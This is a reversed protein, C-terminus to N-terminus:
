CKKRESIRPQSPQTPLLEMKSVLVATPTNRWRTRHARKEYGAPKDNLNKSLQVEKM